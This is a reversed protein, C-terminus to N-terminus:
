QTLLDIGVLTGSGEVWAITIPPKAHPSVTFSAKISRTAATSLRLVGVCKREAWSSIRQSIPMSM